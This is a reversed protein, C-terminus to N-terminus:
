QVAKSGVCLYAVTTDEIPDRFSTHFAHSVTERFREWQAPGLVERAFRAPMSIERMALYDDIAMRVRQERTKLAVDVLGADEFATHLHAPDSLWAESPIAQRTAHDLAEKGVASEALDRWLQRYENELPGWASAAMRGGPRLVRVMDALAAPYSAIHNLVFNALVGDFAGEPFPLGPAVGCVLWTLGKGRALRLMQMSPDLGVAHGTSKVVGLAAEGTGTGADLVRAGAPLALLAALDQAIPAFLNPAAVRDYVAAIPDYSTWSAEM